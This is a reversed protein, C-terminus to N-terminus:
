YSIGVQQTPQGLRAMGVALTERSLVGKSDNLNYLLINRNTYPYYLMFYLVTHVEKKENEEM